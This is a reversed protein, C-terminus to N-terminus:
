TTLLPTKSGAAVVVWGDFDSLRWPANLPVIAKGDADTLFSGCLVALAGGKTLWLEYLSGDAAPPLGAVDILMPWNGAEDVAFIELSASAGSPGSMAVVREASPDDGAAVVLGLTFIAAVGLAAALALLLRRRRSPPRNLSTVRAGTTPAPLTTSEPPPGAEVLLEHVRRLREREAGDVDEGVLDDFEPPRPTM